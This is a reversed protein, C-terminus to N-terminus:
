CHCQELKREIRVSSAQFAAMLKKAHTAAPEGSLGSSPKARSDEHVTARKAASPRRWEAVIADRADEKKMVAMPAVARSFSPTRSAM